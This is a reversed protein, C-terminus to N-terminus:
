ASIACATTSAAPQQASKPMALQTALHQTHSNIIRSGHSDNRTLGQKPPYISRRATSTSLKNLSNLKILSIEQATLERIWNSRHSNATAGVELWISEKTKGGGHGAGSRCRLLEVQLYRGQSSTLLHQPGQIHSADTSFAQVQWQVDAWSPRNRTRFDRIFLGLTGGAEAALQLRRALRDDMEEPLSSWVAGVASCRLAQDLSWWGDERSKPRIVILRKLDIGLAAAAPPYFCSQWDVVVLAKGGKMAAVGAM